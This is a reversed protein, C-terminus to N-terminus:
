DKSSSPMDAPSPSNTIAPEIPPLASDLAKEDDPINALAEADKRDRKDSQVAFVLCIAGGIWHGFCFLVVSAIAYATENSVLSAKM